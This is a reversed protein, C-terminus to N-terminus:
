PAYFDCNHQREEQGVWEEVVEAGGPSTIRASVFHNWGCKLCLIIVGEEDDWDEIFQRGWLDAQVTRIKPICNACFVHWDNPDELIQQDNEYWESYTEPTKIEVASWLEKETGCKKCKGNAVPRDIYYWYKLFGDSGYKEEIEEAIRLLRERIGM